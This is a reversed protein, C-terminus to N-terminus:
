TTLGLTAATGAASVVQVRIDWLGQQPDFNVDLLDLSELKEEAKLNPDSQASKIEESIKLLGKAVESRAAQDEIQASVPPLLGKLGMGTNPSFLDRGPTTKIAKVVLQVLSDIGSAPRPLNTSTSIAYNYRNPIVVRIDRSM